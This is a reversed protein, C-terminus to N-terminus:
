YFEKTKLLFEDKSRNRQQTACNLNLYVPSRRCSRKRKSEIFEDRWLPKLLTPPRPTTAPYFPLKDAENIQGM